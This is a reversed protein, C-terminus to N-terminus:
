FMKSKNLRIKKNGQDNKLFTGLIFDIVEQHTLNLNLKYDIKTFYDDLTKGTVGLRTFLSEFAINKFGKDKAYSM